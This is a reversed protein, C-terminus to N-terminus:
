NYLDSKYFLSPPTWYGGLASEWENENGTREAEWLPARHLVTLFKGQLFDVTRLTHGGLDM